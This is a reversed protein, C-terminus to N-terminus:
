KFSHLIFGSRLKPEFWTSKPPMLENHNAVEILEDISTPFLSFAIQGVSNTRENLVFPSGIAPIFDICPDEKPNTIKFLPALVQNQLISVDLQESGILSSLYDQKCKLAYWQKNYRMGIIHRESPLYIEEQVASIDFSRTLRQWLMSKSYGSKDQIVRHYALINLQSKPFIVALFAKAEPFNAGCREAVKCAAAARHHGDAIYLCPVSRFQNMFQNMIFAETIQYIRHTVQDEYTEEFLPLHNQAYKELQEGLQDLTQDVLYVPGTHAKCKEIHWIREQEKDKRTLEHKKIVGRNYDETSVLGMLGLQHCSTTELEYIYLAESEQKFIGKHIWEELQEGAKQYLMEGKETHEIEPKDIRLFSYPKGKVMEVAESQNMVDYPLAAVERVWKKSPRLASFAKIQVM